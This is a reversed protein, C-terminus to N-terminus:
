EKNNKPKKLIAYIIFLYGFLIVLPALVIRRFDFIKYSFVNPDNSGGGSVLFFGIFVILVGIGILTLNKQPLPFLGDDQLENKKKKDM